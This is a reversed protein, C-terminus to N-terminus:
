DFVHESEKGFLSLVSGCTMAGVELGLIQMSKLKEIPFTEKLMSHPNLDCGDPFTM